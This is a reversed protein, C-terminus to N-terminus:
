GSRFPGRPAIVCSPIDQWLLEYVTMASVNWFLNGSLIVAFM